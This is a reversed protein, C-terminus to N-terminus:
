QQKSLCREVINVLKSSAAQNYRAVKVISPALEKLEEQNQILRNLLTAAKAIDEEVYGLHYRRIIELNGDEQGYIHSVALFPKHAAVAEFLYNPGAKGVILDAAQFYREVKNTFSVLHLKRQGDAEFQSKLQQLSALLKHNEGCLAIVQFPLDLNQLHPLLKVSQPVGGSGTQMVITFLHPDLGLEKRIVTPTFTVYFKNQVLWGIAETPQHPLIQRYREVTQDDFAITYAAKAFVNQPLFTLPDCLVNIVPLSYVKDRLVFYFSYDCVILLKPHYTNLLEDLQPKLVARFSAAVLSEFPQRTSLTFLQHWLQPLYSAIFQYVGGAKYTQIHHHYSTGHKELAEAITKSISTHGRTASLILVDVPPHSHM